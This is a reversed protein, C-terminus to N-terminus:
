YQGTERERERERERHTHTHTHTNHTTYWVHDSIEPIAHAYM